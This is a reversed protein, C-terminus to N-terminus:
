IYGDAVVEGKFANPGREFFCVADDFFRKKLHGAALFFGVEPELFGFPENFFCGEVGRKLCGKGFLFGFATLFFLGLAPLFREFEKPLFGLAAFLFGSLALFFGKLAFFFDPEAPFFFRFETLLFGLAPLFLEFGKSFFGPEAFFIFDLATFFFGLVAPLFGFGALVCLAALSFKLTLHLFGVAFDAFQAAPDSLKDFVECGGIHEFLEFLQAIRKIMDGAVMLQYFPFLPSTKRFYVEEQLVAFVGQYHFYLGQEVVHVYFPVEFPEINQPSVGVFASVCSFKQCGGCAREYRGPRAVISKFAAQIDYLLGAIIHIDDRRGLNGDPLHRFVTCAAGSNPFQRQKVRRM